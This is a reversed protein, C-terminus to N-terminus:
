IHILSLYKTVTPIDSAVAALEAEWDAMTPFIDRLDWQLEAPVEARSLRKKM